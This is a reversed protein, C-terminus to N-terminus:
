VRVRVREPTVSVRAPALKPAKSAEGLVMRESESESECERVCESESESESEKESEGECM